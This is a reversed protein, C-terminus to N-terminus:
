ITIKKIVNKEESPIALHILDCKLDWKGM